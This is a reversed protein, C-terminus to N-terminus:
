KKASHHPSFLEAIELCLDDFKPKQDAKCLKQIEKFHHWHIYEIQQQISSIQRILSDTVSSDNNAPLTQYLNKKAQLIEEHKKGISSRHATILTDYASIQQEDFQLRAIIENRPGDPHEPSKPQKFFFFCLGINVLVLLLVAGSLITVKNM